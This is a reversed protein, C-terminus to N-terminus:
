FSCRCNYASALKYQIYQDYSKFQPINMNAAVKANYNSSITTQSKRETIPEASRDNIYPRPLYQSYIYEQTPNTIIQVQQNITFITIFSNNDLTFSFGGMNDTTAVGIIEVPSSLTEQRAVFVKTNALIAGNTKINNFTLGIYNPQSISGINVPINNNTLKILWSNIPVITNIIDSNLLAKDENSLSPNTYSINLDTKNIVPLSTSGVIADTKLGHIFVTEDTGQKSVTVMSGSPDREIKVQITNNDPTKITTTNDVSINSTITDIINQPTADSAITSPQQTTTESSSVLRYESNNTLSFVYFNGTLIAKGIEIYNEFSNNRRYVNFENDASNIYLTVTYEINDTVLINDSDFIKIMFKAQDSSSVALFVSYTSPLGSIDILAIQNPLLNTPDKSLTYSGNMNVSVLQGEYVSGDAIQFVRNDGNTNSPDNVIYQVMNYNINSDDILIGSIDSSLKVKFIDSPESILDEVVNSYVGIKFYLYKHQNIPININYSTDYTEIMQIGETQYINQEFTPDDFTYFIQYKDANNYIPYSINVTINSSDVHTNTFIGSIKDFMKPTDTDIIIYRAYGSPFNDYLEILRYTIPLEIGEINDLYMHGSMDNIRTFGMNIDNLREVMHYNSSIDPIYLLISSVDPCYIASIDFPM